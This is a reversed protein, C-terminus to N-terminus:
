QRVAHRGYNPVGAVTHKLFAIVQEETYKSKRM